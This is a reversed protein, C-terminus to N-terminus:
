YLVQVDFEVSKAVQGNSEIRVSQIQNFAKLTKGYGIVSVADRSIASPYRLGQNNIIVKTANFTVSADTDRKYYRVVLMGNEVTLLLRLSGAFNRTFTALDFLYEGNVILLASQENNDGSSVASPSYIFMGKVQHDSLKEGSESSTFDFANLGGDPVIVNDWEHWSVEFTGGGSPMDVPSWATPVGSADVAAIKVIQGVSAGTIGLSPDGGVPVVEAAIASLSYEDSRAMLECSEPQVTLCLKIM